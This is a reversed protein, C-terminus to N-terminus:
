RRLAKCSGSDVRPLATDFFKALAVIANHPWEGLEAQRISALAVHGVNPDVGAM